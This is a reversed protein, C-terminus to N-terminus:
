KAQTSMHSAFITNRCCVCRRCLRMNVWHGAVILMAGVAITFPEYQEGFIDKFWYIAGGSFLLLLPYYRGHYRLAGSLLAVAGILLSISLITREFWTQAFFTSGILPLLPIAMPLALCHLACLSSVWIGIKDLITPNEVPTM